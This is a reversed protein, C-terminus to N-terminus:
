NELQAEKEGEGVFCVFCAYVSTWSQVETYSGIEDLGEFVLKPGEKEM